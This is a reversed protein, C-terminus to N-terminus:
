SRKNEGHKRRRIFGNFRGTSERKGYVKNIEQRLLQSDLYRVLRGAEAVSIVGTEESVIIVLADTSETMGIAARHRTGLEPSVQANAALPLFCGAAVIRTGRVIMAGDHLPSNPVFINEILSATLRADLYTGTEVIHNLTNARQLAILAGIRKKALNLVSRAIEEAASGAVPERALPLMSNDPLRGSGLRELARRLEPQFLIILAVPGLTLISNLVWAVGSLGIWQSIQAAIIIIGFGILLQSARTERTLKILQYIILALLLIDAGDSWRMLRFANYIKDLLESL